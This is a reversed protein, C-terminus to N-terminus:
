PSYTVIALAYSISLKQISPEGLFQLETMMEEKRELGIHSAEKQPVFLINILIDLGHDGKVNM